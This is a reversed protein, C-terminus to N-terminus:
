QQVLDVHLDVVPLVHLDLDLYRYVHIADDFASGVVHLAAADFVYTTHLKSTCTIHMTKATTSRCQNAINTKSLTDICAEAVLVGGHGTVSYMGQVHSPESSCM